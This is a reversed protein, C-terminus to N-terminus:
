ALQYQAILAGYEYISRISNEIEIGNYCYNYEIRALYMAIAIGIEFSRIMVRIESILTM